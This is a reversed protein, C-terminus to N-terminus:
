YFTILSYHNEMPNKNKIKKERNESPRCLASINRRSQWSKQFIYFTIRGGIWGDSGDM